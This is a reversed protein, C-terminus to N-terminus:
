KRGIKKLTKWEVALLLAALKIRQTLKSFISKRKMKGSAVAGVKDGQSSTRDPQSFILLVIPSQLLKSAALFDHASNQPKHPIPIFHKGFIM